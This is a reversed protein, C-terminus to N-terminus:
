AGASKNKRGKQKASVVPKDGAKPNEQQYVGFEKDAYFLRKLAAAIIHNHSSESFKAYGRLMFAVEPRLKVDIKEDPQKDERDILPM